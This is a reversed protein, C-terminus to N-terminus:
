KLSPTRIQVSKIVGNGFHFETVILSTLSTPVILWIAYKLFGIVGQYLNYISRLMAYLRTEDLSNINNSLEGGICIKNMRKSQAAKMIFALGTGLKYSHWVVSVVRGRNMNVAYLVTFDTAGLVLLCTGYCLVSHMNTFSVWYKITEVNFINMLLVTYFM